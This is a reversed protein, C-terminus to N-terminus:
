IFFLMLDDLSLETIGPHNGETQISATMGNGFPSEISLLLPKLVSMLLASLHRLLLPLELLLLGLFIHITPMMAVAM